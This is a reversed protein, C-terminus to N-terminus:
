GVIAKRLSGIQFPPNRPNGSGAKSFFLRNKELFQQSLNPCSPIAQSPSSFMWVEVELGWLVDL